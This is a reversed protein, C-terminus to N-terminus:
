ETEFFQLRVHEPDDARRFVVFEGTANSHEYELIESRRGDVRIQAHAVPQNRADVVVGRISEDISRRRVVVTPEAFEAEVVIRFRRSQVIEFGEPAELEITGAPVRDDGPMTLIGHADTRNATTGTGEFALALSPYHIVFVTDPIPEDETDVVRIRLQPGAQVEIDGLDLVGSSRLPLSGWIPVFSAGVIGISYLTAPEFPIRFEFRGDAESPGVAVDRIAPNTPGRADPAASARITIRDGVQASGDWAAVLRGRVIAEISPSPRVEVDERGVDAESTEAETPKWDATTSTNATSGETPTEVRAPERDSVLQWAGFAVIAAVAAAILKKMVLIGGTATATALVAGAAPTASALVHDAHAVVESRVAALGRGETALLALPAALTAPLASRLMELGRKIQTRVTAPPKDLSHAIQTGGLGHVLHLVLVHRYQSPLGELAHLVRESTENAEAATVPNTGLREDFPEGPEGPQTRKRRRIAMKARNALIGVIWPKLPRTPDYADAHEILAVFTGQLLDEAEARDGVLHVAVLLLESATRDFIEALANADRHARFRRYLDELTPRAM